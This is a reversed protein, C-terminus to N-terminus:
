ETIEYNRKKKEILEMNELNTGILTKEITMYEVFGAVINFIKCDYM